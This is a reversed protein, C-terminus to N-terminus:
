SHEEKTITSDHLYQTYKNLVEVSNELWAPNHLRYKMHYNITDLAALQSQTVRQVLLKSIDNDTVSDLVMRISQQLLLLENKDQLSLATDITDIVFQLVEHTTQPFKPIHKNM